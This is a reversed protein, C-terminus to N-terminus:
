QSPVLVLSLLLREIQRIIRILYNPTSKLYLVINILLHRILHLQKHIKSIKQLRQGPQHVNRALLNLGTPGPRPNHPLNNDLLRDVDLDQPDLLVVESAQDFDYLLELLGNVLLSFDLVHLPRQHRENVCLALATDVLQVLVVDSLVLLDFLKTAPLIETVKAIDLVIDFLVILLRKGLSQM